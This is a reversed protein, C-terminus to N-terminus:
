GRLHSGSNQSCEGAGPIGHMWLVPTSPVAADIWDVIYAQQFIWHTTNSNEARIRCYGDHDLSSQQGAALWQKVADAKKVRDAAVLEDLKVNLEQVDQQHQRFRDLSTAKMDTIDQQYLQYQARQACTDVFTKHRGLNKLIGDFKTNFDKWM